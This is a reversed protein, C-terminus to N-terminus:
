EYRGGLPLRLMACHPLQSSVTSLKCGVAALRLPLFGNCSATTVSTQHSLSFTLHVVEGRHNKYSQSEIPSLPPAVLSTLPFPNPRLDNCTPVNSREFTPLVGVATNKTLTADLPNLKAILRKNAVSAPLKTLTATLPNVSRPQKCFPLQTLASSKPPPLLVARPSPM